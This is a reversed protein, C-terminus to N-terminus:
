KDKKILYRIYEAIGMGNKEAKKKLEEHEEKDLLVTTKIDKPKGSTYPRGVKKKDEM